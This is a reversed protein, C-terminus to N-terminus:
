GNRHDIHVHTKEPDFGYPQTPDLHLCFGLEIILLPHHLLFSRIQTAYTMKEHLRILFAKLYSSIPHGHTGYYTSQQAQWHEVVSWDLLSFFARYAQVVPDHELLATLTSQDFISSSPIIM